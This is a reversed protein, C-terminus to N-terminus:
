SSAEPFPVVAICAVPLQATDPSHGQQTFRLIQQNVQPLSYLLLDKSDVFKGPRTNPTQLSRVVFICSWLRRCLKFRQWSDANELAWTMIILCNTGTMGLGLAWDAHKSNRRVTLSFLFETVRLSTTLETPQLWRHNCNIIFKNLINRDLLVAVSIQIKDYKTGYLM